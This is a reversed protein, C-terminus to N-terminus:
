QEKNQPPNAERQAKMHQYTKRKEELDMSFSDVGYEMLKETLIEDIRALITELKANYAIRGGLEELENRAAEKVLEEAESETGETFLIEFQDEPPEIGVFTVKQGKKVLQPKKDGKKLFPYCDVKAVVKYTVESM